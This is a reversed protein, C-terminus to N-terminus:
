THHRSVNREMNATVKNGTREFEQSAWSATGFLGLCERNSGFRPIPYALSPYFCHPSLRTIGEGHSAPCQKTSFHNM